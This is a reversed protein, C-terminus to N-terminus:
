GRLAKWTHPGVTGDVDLGAHRQFAKVAGQTLPGFMGDIGGPSFGARRLLCQAEAVEPGASGYGLGADTTRSNGTYWHGGVREPRCTYPPTSAPASAALPAGEATQGDGGRDMLRVTVLVASSVALVLTVAGAVLAVRLSRTPIRVQEGPGASTLEPEAVTVEAVAATDRGRGWAEAAVEQLALLRTPDEGGIRALAEVAQRPPLSRAGLYREWSKPSYGTRAALQRVSLGSHDKLRRLRVVLQRVRPDLEAPLARWRSM